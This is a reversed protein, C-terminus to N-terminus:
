GLPETYEALKRSVVDDAREQEFEVEQGVEYRVAKNYKDRFLQLVKVKVKGTVQTEVSENVKANETKEM